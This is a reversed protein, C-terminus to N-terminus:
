WNQAILAHFLVLLFSRFLPLQGNFRKVLLRPAAIGCMGVRLRCDPTCAVSMRWLSTTTVGDGM